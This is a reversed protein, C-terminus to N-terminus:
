KNINLITFFMILGYIAIFAVTLIGIYKISNKLHKIALNFQEKNDTTVANKICTSYKYLSYTPYFYLAAMLVAIIGVSPGAYSAGEM